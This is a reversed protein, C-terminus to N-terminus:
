LLLGTWDKGKWSNVLRRLTIFRTVLTSVLATVIIAQPMRTITDPVLIWITYAYIIAGIITLPLAAFEIRYRRRVSSFAAVFSVILCVGWFRTLIGLHQEITTPPFLLVVIGAVGLLTYTIFRTVMEAKTPPLVIAM